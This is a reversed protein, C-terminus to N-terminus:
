IQLLDEGAYRSDKGAPPRPDLPSPRWMRFVERVPEPIEIYRETSVEQLILEMPFLPELDAPGIPQLTGPHLVAPMPKPFDANLNYWAKPIHEEDLVYKIQDSM